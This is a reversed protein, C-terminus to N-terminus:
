SNMHKICTPAAPNANLREEEILEECVECKGYIGGEIKQLAKKVNNFRIELDSTIANREGFEEQDDANDNPDSHDSDANTEENGKTIWDNPNNPNIQGLSKLEETLLKLEEKLDREYKNIDM